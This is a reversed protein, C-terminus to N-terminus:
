MSAQRRESGRDRVRRWELVGRPAMFFCPPSLVSRRSTRHAKAAKSSTKDWNVEVDTMGERWPLRFTYEDFGGAWIQSSCLGEDGRNRVFMLWVDDSPSNQYNSRNIAIAYVPHLELSKM